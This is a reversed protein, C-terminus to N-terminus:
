RRRQLILLLIIGLGFIVAVLRLNNSQLMTGSSGYQNRMEPPNVSGANIQMDVTTTGSGVKPHQADGKSPQNGDFPLPNAANGDIAKKIADKAPPQRGFSPDNSSGADVGLDADTDADLGLIGWIPDPAKGKKPVHPPPAVPLPKKGPGEAPHPLGIFPSRDADHFPLSPNFFSEWPNGRSLDIQLHAQPGEFHFPLLVVPRPPPAVPLAAKPIPEFRDDGFFISNYANGQIAKQIDVELVDDPKQKPTGKPPQAQALAASCLLVMIARIM